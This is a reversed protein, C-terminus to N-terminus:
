LPYTYACRLQCGAYTDIILLLYILAVTFWMSTYLQLAVNGLPTFRYAYLKCDGEVMASRGEDVLSEARKKVGLTYVLIVLAVTGFYNFVFYPFPDGPSNILALGAQVKVPGSPYGGPSSIYCTAGEDTDCLEQLQAADKDSVGDQASVFSVLAVAALVRARPFM